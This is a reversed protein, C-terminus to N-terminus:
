PVGSLSILREDWVDVYYHGRDQKIFGRVLIRTGEEVRESLSFHPYVDLCELVIRDRFVKKVRGSIRVFHGEYRAVQSCDNADVTVEVAGSTVSKIAVRNTNYLKAVKNFHVYYSFAAALAFVLIGIVRKM